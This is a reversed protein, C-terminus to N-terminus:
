NCEMFAAIFQAAPRPDIANGFARLKSVRDSIAHASRADERYAQAHRALVFSLALLSNAPQECRQEDPRRGCSASDDREHERVSRVIRLQDENLTKQISSADVAGTCAPAICRLFSFLVESSPLQLRMRTPQEQWCAEARVADQVMRLVQDADSQISAAYAIVEQAARIEIARLGAM